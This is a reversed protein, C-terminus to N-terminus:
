PTISMADWSFQNPGVSASGVVIINGNPSVAAAGPTEGNGDTPFQYSLTGTGNFTTDLTGDGNLRVVYFALNYLKPDSSVGAVIVAGTGPTITVATGDFLFQSLSVVGANGFTPDLVGNPTFRAAGGFGKIPDFFGGLGVIVINGSPDLAVGNLGVGGFQGGSQVVLKGGNAFTPDLAGAPTFRALFFAASGFSTGTQSAGTGPMTNGGVIYNGEADIVIATATAGTGLDLQVSGPISGRSNFTTDLAGSTTFRALTVTCYTGNCSYGASVVKDYNPGVTTDIAVVVAFDNPNKSSGALNATVFGKGGGFTTDLVGSTTYRAIATDWYQIGRSRNSGIAGALVIKGENGTSTTDICMALADNSVGSILASSQLGGKGFTTDLSLDANYRAVGFLNQGRPGYSTWNAIGAVVIKGDPQVGVGEAPNSTTGFSTSTAAVSTLMKLLAARAPAVGLLLAIIAVAAISASVLLAQGRLARKRTSTIMTMTPEEM